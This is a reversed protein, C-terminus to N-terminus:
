SASMEVGANGLIEQCMLLATNYGKGYETEGHMKELLKPMRVERQCNAYLPVVEYKWNEMRELMAQM